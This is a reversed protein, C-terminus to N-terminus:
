RNKLKERREFIEGDDTLVSRTSIRDETDRHESLHRAYEVGDAFGDRYIQREITRDLREVNSLTRLYTHLLLLPAFLISGVVMIHLTLNYPQFLMYYFALVWLFAYFGVHAYYFYDGISRKKMTGGDKYPQKATNECSVLHANCISIFLPIPVTGIGRVRTQCALGRRWVSSM